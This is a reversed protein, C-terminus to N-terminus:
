VPQPVADHEGLLPPLPCDLVTTVARLLEGEETQVMGDAAVCYACADVVRRKIAPSAQALRQLSGDLLKLEVSNLLSNQGDQGLCCWGARFAEDAAPQPKDDARALASLVIQIDPLLPKFSVYAVQSVRPGTLYKALIRHLMYEYVTVRRDADILAQVATSFQECQPGSLHRLAPLALETLVRRGRPGYQSVPDSLKLMTQITAADVLQNLAELQNQRVSPDNSLLLAFVLARASFPNRASQDLVPPVGALFDSAWQVHTPTPVGVSAAIQGAVIPVGVTLAERNVRGSVYQSMAQSQPPAVFKGDWAADLLKIRQPLPPHTAFWGQGVGASSAFFMHAIQEADHDGIRSVSSTAGLKKLAGCLGNPNRTFQVAAADALFERQRCVAAQILRGFFLGVFGIAMLVGGIAAMALMLRIDRDRDNSDSYFAVRIIGYGILGIVLIGFLAGALKLDLRVDGNLIHSFEHAIVGQLEDRTLRDLAGQTVCIVSDRPSFGAAFANIGREGSMVYVAPVPVGSAISMEEIVDRLMKQKADTANPLVPKAGMMEAVARGGSSLQAIKVLSAGAIVLLTGLTAYAIVDPQWLGSRPPPEEMGRPVHSPPYGSIANVVVISLLNVAVVILIVALLFDLVLISTRRRAQDQHSFFDM